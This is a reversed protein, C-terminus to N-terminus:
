APGQLLALDTGRRRARRGPFRRNRAHVPLRFFPLATEYSRGPRSGGRAWRSRAAAPRIAAIEIRKLQTRKIADAALDPRAIDHARGVGNRYIRTCAAPEPGCSPATPM